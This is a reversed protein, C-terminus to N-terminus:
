TSTSAVRNILLAPQRRVEQVICAAGNSFPSVLSDHCPRCNSSQRVVALNSHCLHGILPMLSPDIGPKQALM